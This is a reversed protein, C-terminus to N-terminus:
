IFAVLLTSLLLATYGTSIGIVSPVIDPEIKPSALPISPCWTCYYNAVDGNANCEHVWNGMPTNKEITNWGPTYTDIGSVKPKMLSSCMDNIEKHYSNKPDYCFGKSLPEQSNPDTGLTGNSKEWICQNYIKESEPVECQNYSTCRNGNDWENPLRYGIGSINKKTPTESQNQCWTCFGSGSLNRTVFGTSTTSNYLERSCMFVDNGGDSRISCMNSNPVFQCRPTRITLNDNLEKPNSGWRIKCIRTRPDYSDNYYPNSNSQACNIQGYKYPDKCTPCSITNEFIKPPESNFNTKHTTYPDSDIAKCSGNWECFYSAMDCLEKTPIKKCNANTSIRGGNEWCSSNCNTISDIESIYDNCNIDSKVDCGMYLGYNNRAPDSKTTDCRTFKNPDCKTIIGSCNTPNYGLNHDCGDSSCLINENSHCKLDSTSYCPNDLINM